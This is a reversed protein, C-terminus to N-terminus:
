RRNKRVADRIEELRCIIGFMGLSGIAGLFMLVALIEHIASKSVQLTAGGSLILLSTIIALLTKM